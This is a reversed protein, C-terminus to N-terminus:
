TCDQIVLKYDSFLAEISSMDNETLLSKDWTTRFMYGIKSQRILEISKAINATLIKTGAVKEYMSFPAKIDMAIYDVLNQEILKQLVNPRSGNTDLKVKYNMEKIKKIFHELGPQITPEGGTIVVGDLKGHRKSLFTFIEEESIQQATVENLLSKNHCYPCCFNCGITFIIAACHGPYDSLTFTQLGGIKM